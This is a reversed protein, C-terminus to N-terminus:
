SKTENIKEIIKKAEIENIEARIKTIARRTNIKTRTQEKERTGQLTFNPQKSSFKGIEQYLCKNSHIGRWFQKQLM